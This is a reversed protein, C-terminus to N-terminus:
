ALSAAPISCSDYVNAPYFTCHIINQLAVTSAAITPISIKMWGVTGTDASDFHAYWRGGAIHTGGGGNKNVEATSNFKQLKIDTNAMTGTFSDTFAM